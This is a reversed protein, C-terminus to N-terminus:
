AKKGGHRFSRTANYAHKQEIAAGLDFKWATAMQFLRVLHMVLEEVLNAPAQEPSDKLCSEYVIRVDGLKMIEDDIAHSFNKSIELDGDPKWADSAIEVSYERHLAGILDLTRIADDAIEIPIGEPKPNDGVTYIRGLSSDPKRHEEYAEVLETKILLLTEVLDRGRVGNSWWGKSVNQSHIISSWALAELSLNQLTLKILSM